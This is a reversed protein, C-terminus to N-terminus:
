AHPQLKNVLPLHKEGRYCDNSSELGELLLDMTQLQFPLLSLFVDFLEGLCGM